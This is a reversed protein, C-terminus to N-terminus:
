SSVGVAYSGSAPVGFETYFLDTNGTTNDTAQFELVLWDAGSGVIQSVPTAGPLIDFVEAAMPDVVTAAAIGAVGLLGLIGVCALIKM